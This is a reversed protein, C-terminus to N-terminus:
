AGPGVGVPKTGGQSTTAYRPLADHVDFWPLQEAVFVHRSPVVVAGAPDDLSAAYLHVEDPLNDHEYSM